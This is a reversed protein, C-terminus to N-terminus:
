IIEFTYQDVGDFDLYKDDTLMNASSAARVDETFGPEWVSLWGVRQFTGKCESIRQMLMGEPDVGEASSLQCPLFYLSFGGHSPRIDQIDRDWLIRISKSDYTRGILTISEREFNVHQETASFEHATENVTVSCMLGRIRIYGGNVQGYPDNIPFTEAQLIEFLNQFKSRRPMSMRGKGAAWSWSPAQYAKTKPGTPRQRRSWQLESALLGRELGALYDTEKLHLIEHVRRALGSLAPLRDKHLTLDTGSYRQRVQHWLERLYDHNSIRNINVFREFSPSELEEIEPSVECARGASCEWYLQDQACYLNRRSLLREQMAWARTQLPAMDANECDFLRFQDPFNVILPEDELCHSATALLYHSIMLPSRKYFLGGESNRSATAAVTLTANSYVHLMQASEIKWDEESDQMICLADIWLYRIGLEKAVSVADFFTKPLTSVQIGHALPAASRGTLQMGCQGGWCHSLAIYPVAADLASSSVLRITSQDSGIGSDLLRTPLRREARMEHRPSNCQAHHLQCNQLWNRVQDLSAQSKTTGSLRPRTFNSRSGKPWIVSSAPAFILSPQPRLKLGVLYLRWYEGEERTEYDSPTLRWIVLILPSQDDANHHEIRRLWHGPRTSPVQGYLLSCIHCGNQVASQLGRISHFPKEWNQKPSRRKGFISETALLDRCLSCLRDFIPEPDMIVNLHPRQATASCMSYCLGQFRHLRYCSLFAVTEPPSDRTSTRLLSHHISFSIRASEFCVPFSWLRSRTCPQLNYM